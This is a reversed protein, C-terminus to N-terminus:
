SHTHHALAEGVTDFRRLCDGIGTLELMRSVCGTGPVVYMTIDRHEARRQAQLLLEAGVSDFFEVRSLDVVLTHLAAATLRQRILETIRPSTSLDIEGSMEVVVTGAEPRQVSLRLAPDLRHQGAALEGHAGRRRPVIPDGGIVTDPRGASNSTPRSVIM